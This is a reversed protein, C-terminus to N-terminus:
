QFFNYTSELFNTFDGVQVQIFPGLEELFPGIWDDSGHKEMLEGVKFATAGRDITRKIANRLDDLPTPYFYNMM